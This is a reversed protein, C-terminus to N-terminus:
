SRRATGSQGRSSSVAQWHAIAREVQLREDYELATWPFRRNDISAAISECTWFGLSECKNQLALPLGLAAIPDADWDFDRSGLVPQMGLVVLFGFGIVTAALAFVATIMTPLIMWAPWGDMRTIITWSLVVGTVSLASAMLAPREFFARPLRPTFPAHRVDRPLRRFGM